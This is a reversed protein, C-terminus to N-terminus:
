TSPLSRPEVCAAAMCSAWSLPVGGKTAPDCVEFLATLEGRALAQGKPVRSGRVAAVSCARTMRDSDILGLRFAARLVGRVAALMRNATAPALKGALKSRVATTHAFDLLWWPLTMETAGWSVIGAITRLATRQTRRSGPALGALYVAVPHRSLPLTGRPVPVLADRARGPNSRFVASRTLLGM